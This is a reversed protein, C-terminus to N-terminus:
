RMEPPCSNMWFSKLAQNFAQPNDMNACHGAQPIISLHTQPQKAHWNQANQYVIPLDHEGVVILLPQPLNKETKQLMKQMGPMVRFSSRTFRQTARYFVQREAEVFNTSSVVYRRFKEMSFLVMWFWKFMEGGQAKAIASNDGFISYGGTVTVTKALHPFQEAMYQAMLSGLSVGVLHASSHGERQLIEAALHATEEITVDGATVQSKGHGLMDLSILYYEAALTEMQHHFCTNDGFAPHFFLVAPNAPNGQTYYFLSYGNKSLQKEEM